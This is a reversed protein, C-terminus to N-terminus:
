DKLRALGLGDFLPMLFTELRPETALKDNFEHLAKVFDHSQEEGHLEVEKKYHPNTDTADAVIGRRLVNDAVILGGAKLLRHPSGPQSRALIIELYRPYADKNADVFILDFPEEGKAPPSSSLSLSSSSSPSSPSYLAALSEVADGTQVLVNAVGNEAFGKRAINAYEESLELGVVHGDKGVAHAWVM